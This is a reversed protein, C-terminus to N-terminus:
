SRKLSRAFFHLGAWFHNLFNYTLTTLKLKTKSVYIRLDTLLGDRESQVGTLKGGGGRNPRLHLREADFLENFAMFTKSAGGIGSSIAVSTIASATAEAVNGLRPIHVCNYPNGFSTSCFDCLADDERIITSYM